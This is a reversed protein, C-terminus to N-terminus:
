EDDRVDELHERATRPKRFREGCSCEFTRKVEGVPDLQVGDNFKSDGDARLLEANAPSVSGRFVQTSEVDVIHEDTSESPDSMTM